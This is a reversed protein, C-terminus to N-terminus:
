RMRLAAGEAPKPSTLSPSRRAYKKSSSSRWGEPRRVPWRLHQSFSTLQVDMVTAEAARISRRLSFVLPVTHDPPCKAPVSSGPDRPAFARPSPSPRKEYAPAVPSEYRMAASRLADRRPASDARLCVAVSRILPELRWSFFERDM